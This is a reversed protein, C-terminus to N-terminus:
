GQAWSALWANAIFTRGCYKLRAADSEAALFSTPPHSLASESHTGNESFAKAVYGFCFCHFPMMKM